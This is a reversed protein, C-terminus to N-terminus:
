EKILLYRHLYEDVRGDSYEVTFRYSNDPIGWGAQIYTIDVVKVPKRAPKTYLIDGRKVKKADNFTM